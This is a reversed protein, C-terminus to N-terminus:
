FTVSTANHQSTPNTGERFLVLVLAVQGLHKRDHVLRHGVVRVFHVLLHFPVVVYCWGVIELQHGSVFLSYDHELLKSVTPVTLKM